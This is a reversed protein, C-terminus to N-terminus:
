VPNVGDEIPAETTALDKPYPRLWVGQMTSVYGRDAYPDIGHVPVVVRCDANAVWRESGPTFTGEVMWPLLSYANMYHNVLARRYRRSRNRKSRHLLYGNFFVVAGAKVEVLRERNADFGHMEKPGDFNYLDATNAWPYLYGSRHSGPLVSLCGNEATADDIAIWAGCLSRDRTPIYIEDQHWAQGQKGPPKVFLMSQMCKVAGDWFPLHAAVIRGLVACIGPHAVFRRMVPSIYHPQHICLISELAQADSLAPDVPTIHPCPYAGRALAVADRKIEEREAASVLDPVVLYGDEIFARVQADSVEYAAAQAPDPAPTTGAARSPAIMSTSWVWMRACGGGGCAQHARWGIWEAGTPATCCWSALSRAAIGNRVAHSLSTVMMGGLIGLHGRTILPGSVAGPMAVAAFMWWRELDFVALELANALVSTATMSAALRLSAPFASATASPGRRRLPEALTARSAPDGRGDEGDPAM